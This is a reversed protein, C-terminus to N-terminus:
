RGGEEVAALYGYGANNVLVDIRGFAKEARAAAEKVQGADAVDLALSLATNPYASVLDNIQMPNRATAAVRHGHKLVRETLARGLGTSCGTIFWVPTTDANSGM